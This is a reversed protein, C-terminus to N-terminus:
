RSGRYPEGKVMIALADDLSRVIYVMGSDALEQQEPKVRGKPLKVELGTWRDTGTKAAFLDPVGKSTNGNFRRPRGAAGSSTSLVTFGHARLGQIIQKQLDLETM